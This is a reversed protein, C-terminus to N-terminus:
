ALLAPDTINSLEGKSPSQRKIEAIISLSESQLASKFSSTSHPPIEGHAIKAIIGEPNASIARKLEAVEKKKNQLIRILYDHM